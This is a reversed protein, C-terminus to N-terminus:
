CAIKFQKTEWYNFFNLHIVREPYVARIEHMEPMANSLFRTTMGLQCGSKDLVSSYDNDVLRVIVKWYNDSVRVPRAVVFCQQGTADIQFIDYKEYYREKFAMTIESGNAGDEVPVDAFEIRKIDNTSVEWEFYM